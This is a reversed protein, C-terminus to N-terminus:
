FLGALDGSVLRRLAHGIDRGDNVLQAVTSGEAGHHPEFLAEVVMPLTPVAATAVANQLAVDLATHEVATMARTLASEVLAGLLIRRRNAVIAAWTTDDIGVPRPGEDLPNLRNPSGGGLQIAAGGVAEAVVTWEGKPDGPVYVKRGFAISRTAMAKALMSKGRGVVGALLCNPNTLVGNQYLVWPDFCFGAGSWADQGIFTGESGLGGEALFPYAGGLVESTARHPPLRLRKYARLAATGTEGRRPLFRSAQREAKLAATQTRREERAAEQAAEVRRRAARSQARRQRRSSGASSFFPSAYTSRNRTM